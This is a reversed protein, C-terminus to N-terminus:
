KGSRITSDQTQTQEKESEEKNEKRYEKFGDRGEGIMGRGRAKEEKVNNGTAGFSFIDPKVHPFKHQDTQRNIWINKRAYTCIVM